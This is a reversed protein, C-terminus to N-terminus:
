CVPIKCLWAECKQNLEEWETYPDSEEVIGTGSYLHMKNKVILACRIAVIWEACDPSSYGIPASYFGRRFTEFKQIVKKAQCWPTGGMAPTPHLRDLIHHDRIGDKLTGSIKQHLHYLDNTKKHGVADKQVDECLHYLKEEVDSVVWDFEKRDKSSSQLQQLDQSTGALAESCLLSGKRWFLREPTCGLFTIDPNLQVLYPIGGKLNKLIDFPDIDPVDFTMRRAMVVKEILGQKIWATCQDINKVWQERTMDSGKNMDPGAPFQAVGDYSYEEDDIFEVQPKWFTRFPGDFEIGGWASENAPPAEFLKSCGAAARKGILIKPYLSQKKLWKSTQSM